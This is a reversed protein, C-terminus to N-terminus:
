RWTTISYWGPPIQLVRFFGSDDTTVTRTFGVTADSRAGETEQLGRTRVTVTVGPVASGQPDKITGEITGTTEQAFAIASMSLVLTAVSLLMKFKSFM